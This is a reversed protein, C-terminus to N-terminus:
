WLGLQGGSADPVLCEPGDEGARGVKANAEILDVSPGAPRLQALLGAVDTAGPEIWRLAQARTAFMVPERDHIAALGPGAPRTLIAASEVVEGGRGEWREWVGALMMVGATVVRYPVKRGGERKWEYFANALGVCRRLRLAERFAAKEAVTESRANFMASGVRPDKAWPPVLGWRVLTLERGRSGARLVLIRQSPAVNYSALGALEEFSPVLRTQSWGEVLAAPDSAVLRGCM